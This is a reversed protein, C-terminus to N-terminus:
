ANIPQLLDLVITKIRTEFKMWSVNYQRKMFHMQALEMPMAPLPKTSDIFSDIISINANLENFNNQKAFKLSRNPTEHSEYSSEENLRQPIRPPYNCMSMPRGKFSSSSTRFIKDVELTNMKTNIFTNIQTNTMSTM